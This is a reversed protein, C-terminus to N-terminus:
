TQRNAERAKWTIGFLGLALLLMAWLSTAPTPTPPAVVRVDLTTSGATFNTDGSYDATITHQGLGTLTTTIKASGNVLTVTGLVNAGDSFTVSGTPSVGAVSATFTVPSGAYPTNNSSTLSVVSAIQNVTQNLTTGASVNNADGSYTLQITHLGVSLASTACTAAPSNGGGVLSVAACLMTAGDSFTVSGTPAQGNVTATFTVSDGYTSPSLSTMATVSVPNSTVVLQGNGSGGAVNASIAADPVFTATLAHTATSTPTISCSTAPLNFSCSLSDTSDDITVTGILTAGGPAVVAVTASIDTAQGPMVAVHPVLTTATSAQDVSEVVIPSTSTLNASDGNYLATLNHTGAALAATTCTATAHTSDVATLTTSGCAIASGGDLFAVTGTPAQGTVTATLTIAQGYVSPNTDSSLSTSTAVDSSDHISVSDIGFLLGELNDVESFRLRVTTGAYASLDASVTVYGSMAADGPQSKYINQLVGAGLDTLAGGPNVVDFRAQQNPVNTYDLTAPAHFDPAENGVYIRASLQPHSGAPLAVDQYLIYSGPGNQDTMAAFSGDPPLPTSFPTLPALVGTQALFGGDANSGPQVYTSWGSFGSTATGNNIEFSGNSVLEGAAAYLLPLLGLLTTAM